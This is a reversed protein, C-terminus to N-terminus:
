LSTSLSPDTTPPSSRPTQASGFVHDWFSTTVGYYAPWEGVAWRAPLYVLGGFLGASVVTPACILAWPREHHTGHWRSFPMVRHLVFRHAGYEMATWALTGVLVCAALTLGQAPPAAWLLLGALAAVAASYLVADARYATKSHELLFLHM